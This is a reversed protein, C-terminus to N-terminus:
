LISLIYTIMLLLTFMCSVNECGSTVYLNYDKQTPEITTTTNTITTTTNTITTTTTSSFINKEILKKEFSNPDSITFLIRFINNIEISAESTINNSGFLIEGSYCTISFNNYTNCNGCNNINFKDSVFNWLDKSYQYDIDGYSGIGIGSSSSKQTIIGVMSQKGHKMFICTNDSLKGVTIDLSPALTEIYPPNTYVGYQNKGQVFFSFIYIFIFVIYFTM